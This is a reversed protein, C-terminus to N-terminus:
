TQPRAITQICINRISDSASIGLFM